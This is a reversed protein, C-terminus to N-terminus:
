AVAEATSSDTSKRRRRGSGSRGAHWAARQQEDASLFALLVSSDPNQQAVVKLTLLVPVALIIGVLGWLASFFWVGLLVALPRLELRRGVLLPEVIQGELGVLLLFSGAVALVRGLSDFTVLAVGSVVLL